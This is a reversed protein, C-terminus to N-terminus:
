ATARLGRRLADVIQDIDSRTSTLIPALALTDGNNRIAVGNEFTALFVEYGRAGPAGQKPTLSLGCALGINRIDTVHPEGRLSHVAEEFYPALEAARAYVGESALVEQAALASAVALPHASYTYGHFFEIGTPVADMFTRYIDGSVVTAGMPVAANNLGKAITCMDPAVGFYTSANPSGLRGFGTIVEDLILLIGHRKTIARLTQLYGAPPIFVGASGSFGEVIVAAITSPDHLAILAELEALFKM